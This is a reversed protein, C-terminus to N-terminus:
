RLYALTKAGGDDDFRSDDGDGNNVLLWHSRPDNCSWYDHQFCFSEEKVGYRRVEHQDDQPSGCCDCDGSAARGLGSTQLSDTLATPSPGRTRSVSLLAVHLTCVRLRLYM